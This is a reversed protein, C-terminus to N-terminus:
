WATRWPYARQPVRPARRENQRSAGFFLLTRDSRPLYIYTYGDLSPRDGQRWAEAARTYGPTPLGLASDRRTMALASPTTGPLPLVTAWSETSITTAAQAFTPAPPRAHQTPSSCGAAALATILLTAALIPRAM